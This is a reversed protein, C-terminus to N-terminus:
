NKVIPKEKVYNLTFYSTTIQLLTESFNVKFDSKPFKRFLIRESPLDIFEGKPSYEIRILRESLVTFRYNKGKIINDKIAMGNDKHSVFYGGVTNM